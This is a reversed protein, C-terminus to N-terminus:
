IISHTTVAWAHEFATRIQIEFSLNYIDPNLIGDKPRLRGIFRTSDFRFVDPAKLTSGRKKINVKLFTSELFEIVDKEYNLDPIIIASGFTDEIDSWKEFRGSELKEALSEVKKFRHISAFENEDCYNSITDRVTNGVFKIYVEDFDFKRKISPPIIM